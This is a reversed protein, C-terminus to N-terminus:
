QASVGMSQIDEVAEATTLSARLRERILAAIQTAVAEKAIWSAGSTSAAAEIASQGDLARVVDRHAEMTVGLDARVQEILTRWADLEAAGKEARVVADVVGQVSKVASTAPNLSAAAATVEAYGVEGLLRTGGREVVWDKVRDRVRDVVASQAAEPAGAFSATIDQGLRQLLAEVVGDQIAIQTLDIQHLLLAKAQAAEQDVVTPAGDSGPEVGLVMADGEIYDPGRVLEQWGSAAQPQEEPKHPQQQQAQTARTQQRQALRRKLRAQAYPTQLHGAQAHPSASPAQPQQAHAAHQSRDQSM